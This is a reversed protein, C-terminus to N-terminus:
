AWYRHVRILLLAKMYKMGIIEGTLERKANKIM